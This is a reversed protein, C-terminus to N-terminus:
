FVVGAKSTVHAGLGGTGKVMDRFTTYKKWSEGAFGHEPENHQLMAPVGYTFIVRLYDDPLNFTVANPSSTGITFTTFPPVYLFNVTYVADPTPYAEPSDTQATTLYALFQPAGDIDSKVRKAMLSEHDIIVIPGQDAIWVRIIRQPLFGAPASAGSITTTSAVTSLTFQSRLCRTTWVFDDGIAAIARDIDTDSYMSSDGANRSFQRIWSRAETLTYAM